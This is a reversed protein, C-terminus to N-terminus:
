FQVKVSKNLDIQLAYASIVNFILDRILLKV